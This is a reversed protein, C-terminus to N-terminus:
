AWIHYFIIIFFVNKKLVLLQEFSSDKILQLSLIPFHQMVDAYRATAQAEQRRRGDERSSCPQFIGSTQKGHHTVVAPPCTFIKFEEEM